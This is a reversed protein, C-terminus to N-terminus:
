MPGYKMLQAIIVMICGVVTWMAFCKWMFRVWRDYPINVAGLIGMLAGSTPLIYNVFGDGFNFALVATQRTVGLLDALPIMIPMTVSAQGSGSSIFLSVIINSILMGPGQLIYPVHDLVSALSHVVTDVITGDAMISGIGRALGITISASMMGKCGEVFEKSIRNPSFGAVAGSVVALVLFVASYEPLDWGLAISGYIIVILSVVLCGIVLWKRLDMTGFDELSVKGAMENEKDLDYMPSKEPHKKVKNAYRILFINTVVYFVGFCVFRYGIGSFPPLEAIQQSVLTTSANLTGTSFGIAGGLIIIATGTLSDLGLALSLMVMVPAFAIFMNVAQTTCILGFILTLIPIFISIRGSFKMAVKAVIAQLAGSKTLMHFAGGSFLIVLLLDINDMFANVIYMPISLPSVPTRPVYSFQQPDIVEVGRADEFRVYEGAPIIWTLLVAVVIIALIIVFTHPMEFKRKEKM